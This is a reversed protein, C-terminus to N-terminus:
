YSHINSEWVGTKIFHEDDTNLLLDYVQKWTASSSLSLCLPRRNDGGYFCLEKLVEQIRGAIVFMNNSAYLGRALCLSDGDGLRIEEETREHFTGLENLKDNVLARYDVGKEGAPKDATSSTNEPYYKVGNIIVEHQIIVENQKM